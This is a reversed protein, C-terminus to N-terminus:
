LRLPGGFKHLFKDTKLRFFGFWVFLYFGLGMAYVDIRRFQVLKILVSAPVLPFYNKPVPNM